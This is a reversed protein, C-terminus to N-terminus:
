EKIFDAAKYRGRLETLFVNFTYEDPLPDVRPQQRKTKGAYVTISKFPLTSNVFTDYLLPHQNIKLEIAQEILERHDQLANNFEGKLDNTRIYTFLPVGDLNRFIDKKGDSALWAIFGAVSNFMGYKPHKISIPSFNDLSRGLETVGRVHVNIYDVGDELIAETM